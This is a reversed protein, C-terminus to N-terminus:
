AGQVHQAHRKGHKSEAHVHFMRDRTQLAPELAEVLLLPWM